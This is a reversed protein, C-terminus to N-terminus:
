PGSAGPISPNMSIWNADSFTPDVRVPYVAEADDVVVALKPAHSRLADSRPAHAEMRAPLERGTADTVRLRSYAIKRGSNKLVLQAGDELREVKAGSVALEVRLPGAGVPRQEIIFDQRVGDMGVSYEEVLGPRIFRATQGDTSVTGKTANECGNLGSVKCQPALETLLPMPRPASGDDNCAAGLPAQSDGPVNAIIMASRVSSERLSTSALREDGAMSSQRGVATAMVRFRDNVTGSPPIVTSSLWLGERTAEGELRQFVCRLRAGDATPSVALGDGQCDAGTGGQPVGLQSWPLRPAYLTLADSRRVLPGREVSEREGDESAGREVSGVERGAAAALTLSSGIGLAVACFMRAPFLKLKTKM